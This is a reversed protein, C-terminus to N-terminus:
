KARWGDVADTPYPDFLAVDSERVPIEPPVQGPRWGGRADRCILLAEDRSYRGAARFELTYGCRNPRAALALLVDRKM